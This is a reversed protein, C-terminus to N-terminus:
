EAGMSAAKADIVRRVYEQEVELPSLTPDVQVVFTIPAVEDGCKPTVFSATIKMFFEDEGVSEVGYEQKLFELHLRQEERYQQIWEVVRALQAEVDTEM